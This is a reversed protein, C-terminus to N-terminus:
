MRCITEKGRSIILGSSLRRRLLAVGGVAGSAGSAGSAGENMKSSCFYSLFFFILHSRKHEPDNQIDVRSKFEFIDKSVNLCLYNQKNNHLMIHKIDTDENSQYSTPIFTIENFNNNDNGDPITIGEPINNITKLKFKNKNKNPENIPIIMKFIIEKMNEDTLDTDVKRKDVTICNLKHTVFKFENNNEPNKQILFFLSQQDESIVDTFYKFNYNTSSLSTDIGTSEEQNSAEFQENKYICVFLTIILILILIISSYDLINLKM